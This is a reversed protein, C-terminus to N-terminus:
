GVTPKQSESSPRDLDSKSGICLTSTVRIRRRLTANELVEISLNSAEEEISEKKRKQKLSRHANTTPSNKTWQNRRM